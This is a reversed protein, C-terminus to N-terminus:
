NILINKEMNMMEAAANLETKAAANFNRLELRNIM